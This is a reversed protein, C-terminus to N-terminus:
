VNLNYFRVANGGFIGHQDDNPLASFYETSLNHWSKYDGALNLVPWDSGWILREAGFASLLHDIYPVVDDFNRSDDTETILGSIKCCASTKAGIMAIDDAWPQWEGSAIDPKAGHDIVVRLEPHRVLCRLLHPLHTSRVLADFCLGEEALVTLVSGVEPKEIWAPDVIDQIMPRVGVFKPHQAFEQLTDIAASPADMDIWGVVGAIFQNEDAISLLYKTEEVTAAAQVLVTSTIGCEKLLPFLDLPGFDAYLVGLDETLWEYDGRARAWFHQHSDIIPTLRQM